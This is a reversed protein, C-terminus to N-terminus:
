IEFIEYNWKEIDELNKQYWNKIDKKNLDWNINEWFNKDKKEFWNVFIVLNDWEKSILLRLTKNWIKVKIKWFPSKLLIFNKSDLKIKKVIEKISVWRIKKIKKQFFNSIFIKM